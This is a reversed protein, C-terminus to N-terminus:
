VTSHVKPLATFPFEPAFRRQQPSPGAVPATTYVHPTVTCSLFVRDGAVSFRTQPYLEKSPKVAYILVGLFVDRYGSCPQTAMSDNAIRFM